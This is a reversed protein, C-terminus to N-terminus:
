IKTATTFENNKKQERWQRILKGIVVWEEYTFDEGKARNCRSCCAVSNSRTYGLANDKRDIYYVAGNKTRLAHPQWDLLANCYHCPQDVFRLYDEYAIEVPHRAWQCLRNFM